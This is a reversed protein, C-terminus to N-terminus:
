DLDKFSLRCAISVTPHTTLAVSDSMIVFSYCKNNYPFESITDADTTNDNPFKWVENFKHNWSFSRTPPYVQGQEWSTPVTSGDIARNQPSVTLNWTKIVQVVKPNWGLNNLIFPNAIASAGTMNAGLDNPYQNTATNNSSPLFPKDDQTTLAGTLGQIDANVMPESRKHRVMAISIRNYPEDQAEVTIQCHLNLVKVKPSTRCYKLNSNFDNFKLNSLDFIFPTQSAGTPALSFLRYQVPDRSLAVTNVKRAFRKYGRRRRRWARQIRTASVHKRRAPNKHFDLMRALWKQRQPVSYVM